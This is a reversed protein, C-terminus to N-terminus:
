KKIDLVLDRVTAVGGIERIAGDFQKFLDDVVPEGLGGASVPFDDEHASRMADLVDLVAITSFDRAPAFTESKGDIAMIFGEDTLVQLLDDVCLEPLELRTALEGISWPPDGHFFRRGILVMLLLGLRDFLKSSLRAEGHRLSLYRPHQHFFSVQVGLLVILWSLYVWVMLLILIAFTSYVANYQASSAMFTAFVWGALKWSLGAMVGGVLASRTNVRADPILKYIFTFAAIIFLSPLMPQLVALLPSMMGQVEQSDPIRHFLENMGGFASFVLLPGVLIFSLYDSLRRVLGRSLKARKRWIFNFSEEIKELLSISTYLLSLLGVSGLLGVDLGRVANLIFTAVSEKKEGLPDLVEMIIPELYADAGFAKLVSFSVALLPILALLSTYVLSMARYDLGGEKIQRFVAYAFRFLRTAWGRITEVTRRSTVPFTNLKNEGKTQDITLEM